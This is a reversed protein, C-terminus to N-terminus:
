FTTLCIDGPKGSPKAAMEFNAIFIIKVVNGAFACREICIIMILIKAFRRACEVHKKKKKKTYEKDVNKLSVLICLLM